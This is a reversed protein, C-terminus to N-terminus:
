SYCRCQSPKLAQLIFWSPDLWLALYGPLYAEKRPEDQKLLHLLKLTPSSASRPGSSEELM